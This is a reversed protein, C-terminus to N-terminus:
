GTHIQSLYSALQRYLALQGVGESKLSRALGELREASVGSGLAEDFRSHFVDSSM